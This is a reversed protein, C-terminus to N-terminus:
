VGISLSNLKEFDLQKRSESIHTYIDMTTKYDSHGLLRQASKPDIGADYLLTAYAHRLQHPTVTVGSDKAYHEWARQFAQETMPKDGGFIYGKKGKLKDALCDLLYIERTGAVTKTSKIRPQNGVFYVSKNVSITKCKFDIDKDTLALAEGRRMGTFLVVYAFLGFHCDVSNKVRKIESESPLERKEKKLNKPVTVISCVNRELNNHLMAYDMILSLVQLATKVTKFAYGKSALLNIFRQVDNATITAIDRDGFQAVARKYHAEYGCWTRHSIKEIHEYKWEEAVVSFRLSTAAQASYELLQREIDRQAQKETKEISYFYVLKGNITKKVQWRGDSRRTM